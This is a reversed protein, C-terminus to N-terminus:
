PANCEILKGPNSVVLSRRVKSEKGCIKGGPSGSVWCCALTDPEKTAKSKGCSCSWKLSPDWTKQVVTKNEECAPRSGFELCYGKDNCLSCNKHTKVSLVLPAIHLHTSVAADIGAEAVNVSPLLLGSLAIGVALALGIRLAVSRHRM